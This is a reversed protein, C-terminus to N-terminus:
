RYRFDYCLLAIVFGDKNSLHNDVLGYILECFPSLSILFIIVNLSFKTALM